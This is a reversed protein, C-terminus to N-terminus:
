EQADQQESTRLQLSEVLKTPNFVSKNGEQLAAFTVQLQFIPSEQFCDYIIDVVLPVLSCVQYKDESIDEPPKCHYVGARFAL